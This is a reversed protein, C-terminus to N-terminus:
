SVWISNYKISRYNLEKSSHIQCKIFQASFPFHQESELKKKQNTIQSFFVLKVM